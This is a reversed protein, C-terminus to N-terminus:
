SVGRRRTTSSTKPKAKPIGKSQASESPRAPLQTLMPPLAMLDSYHWEEALGQVFPPVDEAHNYASHFLAEEMRGPPIQGGGWRSAEFLDMAAPYCMVSCLTTVRMHEILDRAEQQGSVTSLDPMPREGMLVKVMTPHTMRIRRLRDTIWGPSM